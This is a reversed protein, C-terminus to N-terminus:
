ARAASLLRRWEGARYPHLMGKQACCGECGTVAACKAQVKMGRGAGWGVEGEAGRGAM